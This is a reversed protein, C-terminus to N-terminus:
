RLVEEKLTKIEELLKKIKELEKRKLRLQMMETEGIRDADEFGLLYQESTGLAKALRQIQKLSIGRENKEIKSISTKDKLGILHALEEQSLGLKQRLYKVKENSTM